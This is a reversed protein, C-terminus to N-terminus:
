AQRLTRVPFSHLATWNLHARTSTLCSLWPLPILLCGPCGGLLFLAAVLCAPAMRYSVQLTKLRRILSNPQRFAMSVRTPKRTAKALAEAMIERTKEAIQRPVLYSDHIPLAFNGGRLLRTLVNETIESDKRMLWWSGHDGIRMGPSFLLSTRMLPNKSIWKYDRFYKQRFITLVPRSRYTFQRGGARTQSLRPHQSRDRGSRKALLAELGIANGESRAAPAQVLCDRQPHSV